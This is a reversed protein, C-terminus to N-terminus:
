LDFRKYSLLGCHRYRLEVHCWRRDELYLLWHRHHDDSSSYIDALCKAACIEPIQGWLRLVNQGPGDLFDGLVLYKLCWPGKLRDVVQFLANSFEPASIAHPIWLVCRKHNLSHGLLPALM